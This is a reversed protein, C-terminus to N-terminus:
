GVALPYRNGETYQDAVGPGEISLHIDLTEGGSGPLTSPASGRFKAKAAGNSGASPVVSECTVEM